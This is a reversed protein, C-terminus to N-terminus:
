PRAASPRWHMLVADEVPAVYYAPRRGAEVFGLSAYLKRAAVNSARVELHMGYPLGPTLCAMAAKMIARAHGQRRWAPAVALRLVEGEGAVVRVLLTAVLENGVDLRWGQTLEGSLLGGISDADWGVDFCAADLAALASADAMTARRTRAVSM